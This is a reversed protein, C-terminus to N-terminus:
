ILTLGGRLANTDLDSSPSGRPGHRCGASAQDWPAGGDARHRGCLGPVRRGGSESCSDSRLTECSVKSIADRERPMQLFPFPGREGLLRARAPQCTEQILLLEPPTPAPAAQAETRIM